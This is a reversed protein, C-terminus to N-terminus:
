VRSEAAKKVIVSKDIGEAGCNRRAKEPDNIRNRGGGLGIGWRGGYKM